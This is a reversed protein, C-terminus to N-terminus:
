AIPRVFQGDAAIVKIVQGGRLEVVAAEADSEYGEWRMLGAKGHRQAYFFTRGDHAAKLGPYELNLADFFEVDSIRPGM